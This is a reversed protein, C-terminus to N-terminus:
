GPREKEGRHSSIQAVAEMFKKNPKRQSKGRTIIASAYKDLGIPLKEELNTITNSDELRM